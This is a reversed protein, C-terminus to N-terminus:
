LYYITFRLDDIDVAEQIPRHDPRARPYTRGHRRAAPIQDRGGPPEDEISPTSSSSTGTPAAPLAPGWTALSTPATSARSAGSRSDKTAPCTRRCGRWTPAASRLAGLARLHRRPRRPRGRDPRPEQNRGPGGGLELAALYQRRRLHVAAPDDRRGPVRPQDGQDDCNRSPYSSGGYSRRWEQLFLRHIHITRDAFPSGARVLEQASPM